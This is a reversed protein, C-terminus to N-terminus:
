TLIRQELRLWTSFLELTYEFDGGAIYACAETGWQDEEPRIENGEDPVPFRRNM